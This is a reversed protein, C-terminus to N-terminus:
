ATSAFLPTDLGSLKAIRHRIDAVYAAEREILIADFGERICAVGTTGSGAFPDLVTGGPPTILRALWRMLSVPKVTPHRSDARDDSDAKASFFFRAATGIDAYEAGTKTMGWGDGPAASGRPKGVSSKSEGYAAFAALVEDSGPNPLKRFLAKLHPPLKAYEHEPLQVARGGM